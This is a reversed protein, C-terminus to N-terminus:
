NRSRPYPRRGCDYGMAEILARSQPDIHEIYDRFRAVREAICRHRYPQSRPPSVQTCELDVEASMTHAVRLFQGPADVSFEELRVSLSAARIFLSTEEVFQSFSLFPPGPSASFFGPDGDAFAKFSAFDQELDACLATDDPYIQAIGTIMRRDRLFNRWWVWNTLLSDLPHRYIFIVDAFGCRASHLVHQMLEPREQARSPHRLTAHGSYIMPTPGPHCRIADTFYQSREAMHQLLLANLYWRGSGFLGIIYTTRDEGQYEVDWGRRALYGILRHQVLAQAASSQRLMARHAAWFHERPSRRALRGLQQLSLM